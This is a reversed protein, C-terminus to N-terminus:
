YRGQNVRGNLVNCRLLVANGVAWAVALLGVLVALQALSLSLEDIAPLSSLWRWGAGRAADPWTSALTRGDPVSAALEAFWTAVRGAVASWGVDVAPLPLIDGLVAVTDSVQSWGWGLLALAAAVQLAPVLWWWRRPLPAQRRPDVRALVGPVLDPAPALPLGALADFLRRLAELEAGCAACTELHAEARAREAATLRDDLFENLVQETLHGEDAM